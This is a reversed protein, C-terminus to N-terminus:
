GVRDGVGRSPVRIQAGQFAAAIQRFEARGLTRAKGDAILINIDGGGSMTGTIQRLADAMLDVLVRRGDSPNDLPVIAERNHLRVSTGSGANIIGGRQFGEIAGPDDEDVGGFPLSTLTAMSREGIEKQREVLEAFAAQQAETFSGQQQRLDHFAPFTHTLAAGLQADTKILDFASHIADIVAIPGLGAVGGGNRVSEMIDLMREKSPDQITNPGSFLGQFLKFAGFVAAGIGATALGTSLAGGLGAFTGASGAATAGSGVLGAGLGSLPGSLALATSPLVAGAAVTGAVAAGGRGLINGIIGGPGGGGGGFLGSLANGIAGKSGSLGGIIKGLFQKLFGAVMQNLVNMFASKINDWIDIFGDKFSKTHLIMSAFTGQIATDLTTFTQTIGPIVTTEWFGPLTGTEADHKERLLQFAAQAQTSSEGAAAAILQYDTEAQVRAAMLAAQTTIGTREFAEATDAAVQMADVQAQSLGGVSAAAARASESSFDFGLALLTTTPIMQLGAANNAAVAVTLAEITVGSREAAEALADYEVKLAQAIEVAPVGMAAAAQELDALQALKKNVGDLGIFGLDQLAERFQATTDIVRETEISAAAAEEAMFKLDLIIREMETSLDAGEAQLEVAREALTKMHLETLRGTKTWNAMMGELQAMTTTLGVSGLEVDLKQAETITGRLGEAMARNARFTERAQHDMGSMALSLGEITDRWKETLGSWEAWKFVVFAAFLVAAAPAVAVLAVKLGTMLAGTLALVGGELFAVRLTLIPITNALKIAAPGVSALGLAAFGTLRILSGLMILLPAGAAVLVGFAIAVSKVIGPLLEFSPVVTDKVARAITTLRETASTMTPELAEGIAINAGEVASTLLVFKGALGKLQIESIKEATGEADRLEQTFNALAESGRAILSAMAPGARQGFVRMVEGTSLGREELQGVIDVLPLLEGTATTTRIGMETLEKTVSPVAGALRALAGRLATGGLTGQFGADAMLALAAATEEFELGAVKAVPGAIRFANGLQTLDTNATTFAKVMVDTIRDVESVELGYGRMTKATIDAAAGVELQAAAALQLTGEMVGLIENVKFGALGFFGMAEVSQRATFVTTSGLDLAKQKLADFEPGAAGTVAKVRNMGKEFDAFTRVSVAGLAAVAASLPLMSAGAGQIQGGIRQMKMGVQTLRQSALQLAPTFQDRLRIVAELVGISAVPM